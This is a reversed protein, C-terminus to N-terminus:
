DLLFVLVFGGLYLLLVFFSELGINTKAVGHEERRLLGLILVAVMAITLALLFIEREGLAAYLSGSRDVMDASALVLLDFSNGGLVGSLALTFAGRRVAAITTVLEPLSTSIATFLSGVLSESLGTSEFLAIGLQEVGYGALAIIGVLTIFKGWLTLKNRSALTTEPAEMPVSEHVQQPKWSPFSQADAILKVGLIYLIILAFSAPHIGWLHVTPQATAALPITLLLILLVGQTLNAATGAAFSLNARRYTLDAIGLFAIQAAVGGLANSIALEPYGGSAAALSTVIGSLSTSFGLFLSGMLAEGLGTEDALEDAIAALKTGALTIIGALVIFLLTTVAFSQPPGIM